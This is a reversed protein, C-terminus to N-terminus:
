FRCPESCHDQNRMGYVRRLQNMIFPFRFPPNRYGGLLYCRSKVGELNIANLVLELMQDILLCRYLGLRVLVIFVFAYIYQM